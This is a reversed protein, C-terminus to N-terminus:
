FDEKPGAIAAAEAARAFVEPFAERADQLASCRTCKTGKTRIHCLCQRRILGMFYHLVVMTQKHNLDSM